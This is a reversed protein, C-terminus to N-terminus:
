VVRTAEKFRLLAIRVAVVIIAVQAILLVLIYWPFWKFVNMIDASTASGKELIRAIMPLSIKILAILGLDPLFFYFGYLLVPLGLISKKDDPFVAEDNEWKRMGILGATAMQFAAAVWFFAGMLLAPFIGPNRGSLVIHVMMTYGLGIALASATVSRMTAGERKCARSSTLYLKSYEQILAKLVFASVFIVFLLLITPVASISRVLNAYIPGANTGDEFQLNLPPLAENSPSSRSPFKLLAARTVHALAESKSTRLLRMAHHPRASASLPEGNVLLGGHGSSDKAAAVIATLWTPKILFVVLAILGYFLFGVGLGLLASFFTMPILGCATYALGVDLGISNSARKMVQFNFLRYALFLALADFVITSIFARSFLKLFAIFGCVGFVVYTLTKTMDSVPTPAEASGAPLLGENEVDAM